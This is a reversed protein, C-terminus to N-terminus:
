RYALCRIAPRKVPDSATLRLILTIYVAFVATALHTLSSVPERLRLMALLDM